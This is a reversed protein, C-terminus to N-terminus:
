QFITAEDEVTWLDLVEVSSLAQYVLLSSHKSLRVEAVLTKACCVDNKFIIATKVKLVLMRTLSLHSKILTGLLNGPTFFRVDLFVHFAASDGFCLYHQSVYCLCFVCFYICSDYIM